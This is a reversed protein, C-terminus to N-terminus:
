SMDMKVVRLLNTSGSQGFPLGATMVILEGSKALKKELVANKVFLALDDQSTPVGGVICRVGWLLSIKRAVAADDTFALIPQMPRQRSMRIVTSGSKTLCVIVHASLVDATNYAAYTIADSIEKEPLPHRADMLGRWASSKEAREISKQMMMVADIPFNGAATEASLMLVDAGEFAANAVDSVEARTPYPHHIMTELMQTAVVVPKGQERCKRILRKQISPVEEVPVEVGLDGRAVMIGDSVKLIEDIREVANPLEIKAMVAAKGSVKEVVALMDKENQVFSVAVWDVGLKLGFELDAWDKATLASIPLDVGPLNVGKRCSIRGGTTIELKVMGHDTEVVRSRVAGDNFYVADGKQLVDLIEPHPLYCRAADGPVDNSDLTFIDGAKLIVGGKEVFHGLRIKPGQLDQLIPIHLGKEESFHRIREVNERHFDYDGHSFNLRFANVGADILESIKDASAPGITALIKSRRQM